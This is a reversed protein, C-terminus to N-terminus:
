PMADDRARARGLLVALESLERLAAAPGPELVREAFPGWLAAVPVAGAAIAANMDHPSDGVYACREIPVGMRRAAELLPEPEPKHIETDEYAVVVEFYDQLGFIELGRMAVPKSKSTVIALRYGSSVLAKLGDEVGPYEAVLDDHVVANHERYCMLLEECRETDFERMQVRLPVGVNHLLVSDPLAEGLVTATAHRMSSLILDITDILTGDLDFLVVEVAALRTDLGADGTQEVM